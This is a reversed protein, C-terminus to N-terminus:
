PPRLVLCHVSFLSGLRLMQGSNQMITNDGTIYRIKDYNIRAIVALIPRTKM